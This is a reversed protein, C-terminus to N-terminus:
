PYFIAHPSFLLSVALAKPSERCHLEYTTSKVHGIEVRSECESHLLQSGFPGTRISNSGNKALSEVEEIAWLSAPGRCFMEVFVSQLFTDSLQQAYRRTRRLRDAKDLIAAIRKQESLSPLEIVRQKLDESSLHKVTVFPTNAEIEKLLLSLRFKIFSRNAIGNKVVLKCVRQNLLAMGGRWYAINFEGDMGVLLDDNHILYEKPYEGSFYTESFGRVVDRIRAVPLGEKKTNFQESKFAYGNIVEVANGVQFHKM